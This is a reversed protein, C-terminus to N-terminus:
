PISQVSLATVSVLLSPTVHRGHEGPVYRPSFEDYGTHTGHKGPLAVLLCPCADQSAHEGPFYAFSDFAVVQLWHSTPFYPSKLTVHM